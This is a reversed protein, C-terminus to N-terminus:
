LVKWGASRMRFTISKLHLCTSTTSRPLRQALAAAHKLEREAVQVAEDASLDVWGGGWPVKMLHEDVLQTDQQYINLLRGQEDIFKMPLGSANTFGYCWEGSDKQFATGYHYLDMNMRMGYEAQVRATEVWGSWLIRHTRVTPPVPAYGFGIFSQMYDHWGAELGNEVYPHMGFEHGRSRWEAVQEPTPYSLNRAVISRILPVNALEARGRQVLRRLKSMDEPTYYISMRGGFREVYGLTEEITQPSNNHSDGTAILVGKKGAPFYGLRPLPLRDMLMETIMRSLLRMQEDAQPIELRDLDIWGVYADIARIGDRGDREENVWEPNGQRTYVVSKALDFSWGAARGDGYPNITVAPYETPLDDADALWAICEAGALRYYDATGHFQVARTESGRSLAHSM